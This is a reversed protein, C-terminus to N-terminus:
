PVKRPKQRRWRLPTTMTPAAMTPAARSAMGKTPVSNVGSWSVPSIVMWNWSGTEVRESSVASAAARM